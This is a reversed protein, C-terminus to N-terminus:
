VAEKTEFDVEDVEGLIADGSCYIKDKTKAEGKMNRKKTSTTSVQSYQSSSISGTGATKRGRKRGKAKTKKKKHLDEFAKFRIKLIRNRNATRM